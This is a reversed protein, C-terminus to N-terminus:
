KEMMSRLRNEVPTLIENMRSNIMEDVKDLDFDQDDAIESWVENTVAWRLDSEDEYGAMPYKWADIYTEECGEPVKICLRDDTQGFVFPVEPSAGILKPPTEGTFTLTLKPVDASAGAFANMQIGALNDPIEINALKSAGSFAGTGIYDLYWGDPLGLTEGDLCIDNVYSPVGVLTLYGDDSLRYPYYDTPESVTKAGLMTRIDNESELLRKKVEADVEEDEPMLIDGSDWDFQMMDVRISNWMENYESTDQWGMYGLRKYRWEKIYDAVAGKPVSIHLKETEEEETWSYNFRFNGGYGYICLDPPIPDDIMLERMNNCEDFLGSWLAVNNDPINYIHFSTMNGCGQFAFMGLSRLNSKVEMSTINKCNAYVGEGIDIASMETGISIDGGLQSDRFAYEGVWLLYKINNWDIEYKGHESETDAFAFSYIYATSDPLIVKDPVEKGSRIAIWNDTYEDSAGGYLVRCGDGIDEIVYNEIGDFESLSNAHEGYGDSDKPVFFLSNSRVWGSQYYDDIQPDYDDIMTAKKANSAVFRISGCNDFAENGITIHDKTQILVGELSNCNNFAGNGINVVSEPLTVWKLNECNEFARDGVSTITIDEEGPTDSKIVGNFETIDAPADVLEIGGDNNDYYVFGDSSIKGLIVKIDNKGSNSIQKEINSKQEKTSCIIRTIGSDAFCDNELITDSSANNNFVLTNLKKAAKFANAKIATINDQIKWISGSVNVSEKIQRDANVVVGNEISYAEGTIDSAIMNNSNDLMKANEKIYDEVLDDSVVIKSGKLKGINLKPCEELTDAKFSIQKIKNDNSIHVSKIDAPIEIESVSYPIALINEKEKDCLVGDMSSFKQNKESVVYGDNVRLGDDENIEIVTDPISLTGVEAPTGKDIDIAQIYDPVKVFDGSNTDHGDWLTALALGEPDIGTLTQLYILQESETKEDAVWFHKIQVKYREPLDIMEAPELIHRGVTVNYNWGVFEGREMWGPFLKDIRTGENGLLTDQYKYLNVTEEQDYDYKDLNVTRNLDIQTDLENLSYSLVYLKSTKLDYEVIKQTWDDNTSLRYEARIYMTNVDKDTPINVPFETNWTKGSDFSVGTFRIYKNLDGQMWLLFKADKGKGIVVYTDLACMIDMESITQGKYLYSIPTGDASIVSPGIYVTKDEKKLNNDKEDFRINSGKDFGPDVKKPPPNTVKDSPYVVPKTGGGHDDDKSDDDKNDDKGTIDGKGSGNHDNKNGSEPKDAGGGAENGTGNGNAPIIVGGPRNGDSIIIDANSKDGTVNYVNDTSNNGIIASATNGTNQPNSVNDSHGTNDAVNSNIIISQQLQDDADPPLELQAQSFLYSADTGELANEGLMASKEEDSGTEQSKKGKVDDDQSFDVKNAHLKRAEGSPTFGTDKQYTYIGAATGVGLAVIVSATGAKKKLYGM